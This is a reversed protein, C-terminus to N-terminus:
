KGDTFRATTALEIFYRLAATPLPDKSEKQNAGCLRANHTVKGFMFAFREEDPTREPEGLPIIKLDVSLDLLYVNNMYLVYGLFLYVEPTDDIKAGDEYLIEIPWIKNAPLKEHQILDYTAKCLAVRLNLTEEAEIAKIAQILKDVKEATKEDHENNNNM